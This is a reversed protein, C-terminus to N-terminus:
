RGRPIPPWTGDMLITQFLIALAMCFAYPSAHLLSLAPNGFIDIDFLCAMHESNGFQAFLTTPPFPM